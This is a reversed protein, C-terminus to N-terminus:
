SFMDNGESCHELLTKAQGELVFIDLILAETALTKRLERARPKLRTSPALRRRLCSEAIVTVYVTVSAAGVGVVYSQAAPAVFFTGIWLEQLAVCLARRKLPRSSATLSALWALSWTRRKPM